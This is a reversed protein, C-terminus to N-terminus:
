KCFFFLLISTYVVIGYEVGRGGKGEGEMVKGLGGM